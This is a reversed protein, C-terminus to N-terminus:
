ATPSIDGQILRYVTHMIMDSNKEDEASWGTLIGMVAKSNYRRVIDLEEASLGRYLGNEKVMRGFIYCLQEDLLREIEQAYNSEMAWKIYPMINLALMFLYRFEEETGPNEPRNRSYHEIGQELVWRLLDPIDEFHYYISQRTIHCKDVIDKVTLKKKKDKTILEIAAQAITEKMDRAM